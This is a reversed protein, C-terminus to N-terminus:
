RQELFNWVVGPRTFLIGLVGTTALDFVSFWLWTNFEPIMLGGKTGTLKPNLTGQLLCHVQSITVTVKATISLLVSYNQKSRTCILPLSFAALYCETGNSYRPIEGTVGIPSSVWLRDPRRICRWFVDFGIRSLTKPRIILWRCGQAAESLWVSM